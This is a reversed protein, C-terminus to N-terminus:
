KVAGAVVRPAYMQAINQVNTKVTMVARITVFIIAVVVDYFAIARAHVIVNATAYPTVNKM